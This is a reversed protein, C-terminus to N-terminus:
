FRVDKVKGNEFVVTLDAYSWKESSGFTVQKGPKGMIDVVELATMGARIEKKETSSARPTASKRASALVPAASRANSVGSISESSSPADGAVIQASLRRASAEDPLPRLWHSIYDIAAPVDERTLYRGKWAEPFFFKFNTSVTERNETKLIWAGRKIKKAETSLTRLDVRNDKFTVDVIELIEGPDLFEAMQQNSDLLGTSSRWETPSVVDVGFTAAGAQDSNIGNIPVTPLGKQLVVLYSKKRIQRQFEARFDDSLKEARANAAALLTVALICVVRPAM